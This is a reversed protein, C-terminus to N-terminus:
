RSALVNQLALKQFIGRQLNSMQGVKSLQSGKSLSLSRSLSLSLSISDHQQPLSSSSHKHMRHHALPPAATQASSLVLSEVFKESASENQVNQVFECNTNKARKKEEPM